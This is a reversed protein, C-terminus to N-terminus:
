LRSREAKEESHPEDELSKDNERRVHVDKQKDQVEVSSDKEPIKIAKYKEELNFTKMRSDTDKLSSLDLPKDYGMLHVYAAKDTFQSPDLFLPKGQVHIHTFMSASSHLTIDLAKFSIDKHGLLFTFRTATFTKTSKNYYMYLTYRKALLHILLPNLVMFISLGGIMALKLATSEDVALIMPQFCLTIFSTSLSFIKLVKINPALNGTYVLEGKEPDNTPIFVNGHIHKQQQDKQHIYRVQVTHLTKPKINHLVKSGKEQSSLFPLNTHTHCVSSSELGLVGINNSRSCSSLTFLPRSTWCSKVNRGWEASRADFRGKPDICFGGSGSQIRWQLLM